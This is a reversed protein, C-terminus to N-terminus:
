KELLLGLREFMEYEFEHIVIPPNETRLKYEQCKLYALEIMRTTMAELNVGQLSSPLSDGSLFQVLDCVHLLMEPVIEHEKECMKIGQFVAGIIDKSDTLGSKKMLEDTLKGSIQFLKQIYSIMKCQSEIGALSLKSIIYPLVRHHFDIDKSEEENISCSYLGILNALLDLSEDKSAALKM